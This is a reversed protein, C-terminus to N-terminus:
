KQRKPKDSGPTEDEDQMVLTTEDPSDWDVSSTAQTVADTWSDSILSSHDEQLIPRAQFERISGLCHVRDSYRPLAQRFAEIYEDPLYVKKVNEEEFRVNNIARWEREMYYNKSDDEELSSDLFKVFALLHFLAFDHHKRDERLDEIFDLFRSAGQWRSRCYKPDMSEFDFREDPNDPLTDKRYMSNKEVYFVPSAGKSILFSKDFAIGFPSYKTAHPKLCEEPIDCFCVCETIVPEGNKWRNIAKHPIRLRASSTPYQRGKSDTAMRKSPTHRLWGETLISQLVEFCRWNPKGRGVFHTLENSIYRPKM